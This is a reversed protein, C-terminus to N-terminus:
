LQVLNKSAQEHKCNTHLIADIHQMAIGDITNFSFIGMGISDMIYITIVITM